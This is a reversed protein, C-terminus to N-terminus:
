SNMWKLIEDGSMRDLSKKGGLGTGKNGKIPEHVPKKATAKQTVEPVKMQAQAVMIAAQHPTANALAELKGGKVINYYALSTDDAAYLIEEVHKPLFQAYPAAEEMVERFDPISKAYQQNKEAIDAHKQQMYHAQELEKRAKKAETEKQALEERLEHKAQDKLYEGYEEYDDANPAKPKETQTDETDGQLEALKAMFKNIQKERRRIANKYKKALEADDANNSSTNEGETEQTAPQANEDDASEVENYHEVDSSQPEDGADTDPAEVTVKREPEAQPARESMIDNIIKDTTM